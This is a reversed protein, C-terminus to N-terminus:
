IDIATSESREAIEDADLERGAEEALYIGEMVLMSNLAIEGTPIPDAMGTLTQVWHSFQDESNDADYGSESILLGKRRKFEDLNLSVTAEYDSLTTYYEFPDLQIGGQSGVVVNPQDPLFIHWAARLSLLSGDALRAFGFGSDEVNYNSEELREQYIPEDGILEEDYADGTFEFTAGSVREVPENGLLYLLQGVIYTGIDIVPGGGASTKQVFSQTGYGDIYPRGRRRSYSGRALYTEGLDGNDILRRAAQTEENFLYTNQVGLQVGAEDAADAMAKADTYTAAMPKECFVHYGMEVADITVPKHLNNHVCVHVADLDAGGLMDRYDGYVSPIDFEEALSNAADEDIDAVAVVEAGDVSVLAKAHMQGRNGAGVIGIRIPM